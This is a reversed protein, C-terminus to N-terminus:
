YIFDEISVFVLFASIGFFLYSVYSKQDKHLEEVGMIVMLLALGATTFPLLDNNNSVLGYLSLALVIISITSRLTKLVTSGENRRIYIFPNSIFPFILVDMEICSRGNNDLLIGV